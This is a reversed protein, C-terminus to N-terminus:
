RRLRFPKDYGTLEVYGVGTVPMNSASGKVSVSGEWYTVGTSKETVMEQDAMQPIVELALGLSPMHIEWHAPYLAETRSSRWHKLVDVTFEERSLHHATGLPGVFTGSSAQSLGGTEKRLLYLMVETQNSLQLSFWDWGILNKELPASSFEHDMWGTGTVAYTKGGVAVDGSIQLRPLSYYCSASEPKAGKRSYGRDGHGVPGKRSVARLNLAVEDFAVRLLHARSDIRVSWDGLFVRINDAQRQEGALGVAGRAVQEDMYFAKEKLDSLAAHAFYLQETRWSSPEKPRRMADNPPVIQTRFFTVQFGFRRGTQTEMNGTYYWWETRYGRHTGHDKPFQFNCPGTVQLYQGPEGYAECCAMLVFVALIVQMLFRDGSGMHKGPNYKM